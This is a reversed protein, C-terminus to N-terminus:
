QSLAFSVVADVGLAVPKSQTKAREHWATVTYKGEPVGAIKFNGQADTQAFYPTPAVVVFAAMGGHRNCLLPVVGPTDFKFSRKLGQAKDLPGTPWTGLNHRLTKDGSIGPWYINHPVTDSNLFDVTAGAPVVLVHPIFRLSRQDMIYHEDPVPFSKGAAAELYVVSPGDVGTVRGSIAGAHLGGAVTMFWVGLWRMNIKM